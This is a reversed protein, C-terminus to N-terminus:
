SLTEARLNLFEELIAQLNELSLPKTLVKNMGALLSEKEVVGLAHATLGVIPISQKDHIKELARIFSALENGSIGPLGIDTLVLDFDQSNALALAQEGSAASVYSCNAQKVIAEVMKLAVVNDEVLLLRLRSTEGARLGPEHKSDESATVFSLLPPDVEQTSVKISKGKEGLKMKLSFSFSSGQGFESSLSINGGLTQVYKKVISLGLGYGAYTGKYSPSLRSFQEFITNQIEPSIGIGTDTVSVNLEATETDSAILKVLIKIQGKETFKIANGLLNLLIRNFKIKDSIVTDPVDEEVELELSLGKMEISPKELDILEEITTRINFREEQIDTEKLNDSAVLDLVGNLLGLLQVGSQNICEAYQKEESDQCRETLLKSMGIIGAVPTRIDHSMNAIFATKAQNAAEAKEKAQELSIEIKKRESIDHYIGLVGIVRGSTAFLPIKSTLLILERGDALTQKEEIQDKARKTKMVVRDDARYLEAQYQGWPLEYDTKGVIDESSKLNALVAFAQNCGMFVSDANKWFIAAPLRNILEFVFEKEKWYTKDNPM